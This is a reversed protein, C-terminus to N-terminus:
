EVFMFLNRYVLGEESIFPTKENLFKQFIKYKSSLYLIGNEVGTKLSSVILCRNSLKLCEDVM